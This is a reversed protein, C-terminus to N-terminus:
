NLVTKMIDAFVGAATVDAGAGYGRITMPHAKYRESYIMVINNSDDLLYFLNEHEVEELGTRAKGDKISAIYRLCKGQGKLEQMYSEFEKGFIELKKYFLTMDQIDLLEQPLFPNDEINDNNLAYGAVRGLILLKRKVDKGSLDIHPDPETFGAETAMKVAEILPIGNYVKNLIFNLSGSLVAEIRTIKDGSKVMDEITELVPLGAGVNTEFRFSCGSERAYQILKNYYSYEASAALKNATVVSIGNQLLVPYIASIEQSATCDVLISNPNNKNILHCSLKLLDAKEAYEKWKAPYLLLVGEKSLLMKQSNIFGKIQLDINYRTLLYEKQKSLQEMLANGVNGQGALYIDIVRNGGLFFTNHLVNVAKAVDEMNLVVSINLESGGQATAIININYKGLTSFMKGSIGPINKMDNGVIALIAKNDEINIGMCTGGEIAKQFHTELLRFAQKSDTAKVAFSISYESSAQAIFIVNINNEALLGFLRYSVGVNGQLGNGYVTILSINPISSIGKVLKTSKNDGTKNILTGALEPKFTNKIRIPINEQIASWLASTCLVSAGFHSLEAAESYNLYPITIAKPEISPDATMMGDVNTWIQLEEVKLAAAILAASLDSGGRGLTTVFGNSTKGYFGPVIITKDSKQFKNIINKYTEEWLISACGFNNDTVIINGADLLLTNELTFSLLTASLTEGMSLLYDELAGPTDKIVAIGNLLECLHSLSNNVIKEYVLFTKQNLATKAAKLHINKLENIEKDYGKGCRFANELLAAIRNTVGGMASAVVISPRKEQEVITKIQLLSEGCSLSTGGFKMVIM